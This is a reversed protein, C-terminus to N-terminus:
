LPRREPGLFRGFWDIVAPQGMGPPPWSHGHGDLVVLDHTVGAERFRDRLSESQQLPVLDDATGHILLTPPNQPAVHTVPSNRRLFQRVSEPDDLREFRETSEDWRRADLPAARKTGHVDLMTRGPEGYNLLDTPPYYAVAAQVASSERDVPDAAEPDAPPPALSAMLTVHGGSSGGVMGIRGPDIRFRGAHHRIFRVARPLDPRLEDLNYKPQTAHAAAFVVYGADLLCRPLHQWGDTEDLMGTRRSLRTSWGGSVALLVGADVRPARPTYVDMVLAMGDKTGYVIDQQQDVDNRQTM